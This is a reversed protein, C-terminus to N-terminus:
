KLLELTKKVAYNMIEDQVVNQRKEFLIENYLKSILGSRRYADITLSSSLNALYLATEISKPANKFQPIIHKINRTLLDKFAEVNGLEEIKSSIEKKIEYNTM